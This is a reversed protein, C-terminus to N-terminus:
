SQNLWVWLIWLIRVGNIIMLEHYIMIDGFKHLGIGSGDAGHILAFLLPNFKEVGLKGVVAAAGFIVQPKHHPM